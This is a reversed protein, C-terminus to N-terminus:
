QAKLGRLYAILDARDQAEPVSYNMRQGAILAEPDRLWADLSQSGWVLKSRALAPSYAFGPVSGARRGFVGRHRPGVRDAEPSHCASCRQEYLAQGRVADGTLGPGAWAGGALGLCLCYAWWQAGSLVERLDARPATQPGHLPEFGAHTNVAARSCTGPEAGLHQTM